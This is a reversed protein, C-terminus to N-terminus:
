INARGPKRHHGAFPLRVQDREALLQCRVGPSFPSQLALHLPLTPGSIWLIVVFLATDFLALTTECPLLTLTVLRAPSLVGVCFALEGSVALTQMAMQGMADSRHPVRDDDLFGREFSPLLLITAADSKAGWPQKYRM